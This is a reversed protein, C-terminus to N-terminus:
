KEFSIGIKPANRITTVGSKHFDAVFYCGNKDCLVRDPPVQTAASIIGKMPTGSPVILWNQGYNGQVEKWLRSIRDTCFEVFTDLIEPNWLDLFVDNAQLVGGKRKEITRPFKDLAWQHPLGTDYDFWTNYKTEEKFWAIIDAPKMGATPGIKMENLFDGIEINATEGAIIQATQIARNTNAVIVRDFHIGKFAEAAKTASAIGAASLPARDSSSWRLTDTETYNDQTLGPRVIYMATVLTDITRPIALM